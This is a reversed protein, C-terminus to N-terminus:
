TIVPWDDVSFIIDSDRVTIQDAAIRTRLMQTIRLGRKHRWTEDFM